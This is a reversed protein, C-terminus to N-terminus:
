LVRTVRFTCYNPVLWEQLLHFLWHNFQIWGHKCNLIKMISIKHLCKFNESNKIMKHREVDKKEVSYWLASVIPASEKSYTFKVVSQLLFDSLNGKQEGLHPSTHPIIRLVRFVFIFNNCPHLLPDILCLKNISNYEWRKTHTQIHHSHILTYVLILALPHFTGWSVQPEHYNAEYNWFKLQMTHCNGKLPLRKITEGYPVSNYM